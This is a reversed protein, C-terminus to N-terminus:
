EPFGSEASSSKIWSHLRTAAIQFIEQLAQQRESDPSHNLRAEFAKLIDESTKGSVAVIFPMDFRERYLRNLRQFREYDDPSLRDLGASAQETSSAQTMRTRSGLDPHARILRMQETQSLSQVQKVMAQHLDAVSAFPRQRWSKAAIEPTDEFVPGLTETFEAQTMQNLQSLTHPMPISFPPVPSRPVPSCPPHLVRPRYPQNELPLFNRFGVNLASTDNWIDQLCAKGVRLSEALLQSASRM